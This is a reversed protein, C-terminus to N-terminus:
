GPSGGGSPWEISLRRRAFEAASGVILIAALWSGHYRWEDQLATEALLRQMGVQVIYLTNMVIWIFAATKRERRGWPTRGVLVRAFAMAAIVLASGAAILLSFALARPTGADALRRAAPPVLFFLAAMPAVVVGAAMWSRVESAKESM